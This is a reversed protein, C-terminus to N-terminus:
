TRVTPEGVFAVFIDTHVVMTNASGVCTEVSGPQHGILLRDNLDSFYYGRVLVAVFFRDTEPEITRAHSLRSERVRASECGQNLKGPHELSRLKVM